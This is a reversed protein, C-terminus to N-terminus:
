IKLYKLYNIEFENLSNLEKMKIKIEVKSSNVDVENLNFELVEVNTTTLPLFNITSSCGQQCLKIKKDELKFEFPGGDKDIKLVGGSVEIKNAGILVWDLKKLVFNMEIQATDKFSLKESSQILQFVVVMLGGIIISFLTIYIILEMLTFGSVLKPITKKNGRKIRMLIEFFIKSM